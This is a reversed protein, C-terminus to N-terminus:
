KRTKDAGIWRIHPMLPIAARGVDYQIHKLCHEGGDWIFIADVMEGLSLWMDDGEESLGYLQRLQAKGCRSSITEKPWGNLINRNAWKDLRLLRRIILDSM